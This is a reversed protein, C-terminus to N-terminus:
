RDVVLGPFFSAIVNKTEVLMRISASDGFMLLAIIFHLTCARVDQPDVTNRRTVLNAMNSSAFNFHTLLLKVTRNGLTALAILLKLASKIQNSKNTSKLMYYFTKGHKSILEEALEMVFNEEKGSGSATTLIIKELVTFILAIDPAKLKQADNLLTAIEAGSTARSLDIIIKEGNSDLADLFQQLASFSTGPERVARLFDTTVPMCMSKPHYSAEDSRVHNNPCRKGDVFTRSAM